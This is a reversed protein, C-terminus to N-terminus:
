TLYPRFVQTVPSGDEWLFRLYYHAGLRLRQWLGENQVEIALDIIENKALTARVQTFLYDGKPLEALTDGSVAKAQTESDTTKGAFTLSGPFRERDPQFEQAM